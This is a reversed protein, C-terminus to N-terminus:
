VAVETSKEYTRKLISWATEGVGPQFLVLREWKIRKGKESYDNEWKANKVWSPFNEPSDYHAFESARTMFRLGNLIKAYMKQRNYLEIMNKQNSKPIKYEGSFPSHQLKVEFANFITKVGKIKEGYSYTAPGKEEPFKIGENLMVKYAARCVVSEEELREIM